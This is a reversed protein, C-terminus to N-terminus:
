DGISGLDLATFDANEDVLEVHSTLKIEGSLIKTARLITAKGKITDFDIQVNIFPSGAGAAREAASPRPFLVGDSERLYLVPTGWDRNILGKADFIERRAEYLAEDVSYGALVRPYVAAALLTASDTKIKFQNALVAPIQERTLASAVGSWRNQGNVRGSECAGLLALRVKADRLRAALKEAEYFESTRDPKELILKGEQAAPDYIGHGGFHFVDAEGELVKKLADLTAPHEALSLVARPRGSDPNLAGVASELLKKEEDLPLEDQDIPSSLMAALRMHDRQPLSRQSAQVQNSRVISVERRLALFDTPGKGAAQQLRLFEWPVQALPEADIVLRLRLGEGKSEVEHLSLLFHERLIGEPLALNALQDGLAHMQAEELQRRDLLGLPGGMGTLPNAWFDAPKYTPRPGDEPKMGGGFGPHAGEIWIRFTSDTSNFDDLHLTFDRYVKPAPSQGEAAQQSSM